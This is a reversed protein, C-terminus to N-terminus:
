DRPRRKKTTSLLGSRAERRQMRPQGDSTEELFGCPSGAVELGASLTRLNATTLSFYDERAAFRIVWQTEGSGTPEIDIQAIAHSM